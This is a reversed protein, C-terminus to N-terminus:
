RLLSPDPRVQPLSISDHLRKGNLLGPRPRNHEPRLRDLIPGAPKM